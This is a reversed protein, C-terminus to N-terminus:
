QNAIAIHEFIPKDLSGGICLVFPGRNTSYLIVHDTRESCGCENSRLATYTGSHTELGLIKEVYATGVNTWAAKIESAQADHYIWPAFCLVVALILILFFRGQNMAGGLLTRVHSLM